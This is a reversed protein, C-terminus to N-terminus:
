ALPCRPLLRIAAPRTFGIGGGAPKNPDYYAAKYWENSSPLVYKAFSNRNQNSADYGPDSSSSLAINDHVDNTLFNYAVAHGKSSNLRNVFRAAHNWSVGSAPKDPGNGGFASLDAIPIVQSNPAGFSANYKTIMDQSVEFKGIDYSYAVRGAPNHAGTADNANGPNGIPVFEMAFSNSGTGFTVIGAHTPAAMIGLSMLALAIRFFYIKM